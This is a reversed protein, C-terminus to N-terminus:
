VLSIEKVSFGRILLLFNSSAKLMLYRGTFPMSHDVPYLHLQSSSERSLTVELLRGDLMVNHRDIESDVELELNVRQFRIIAGLDFVVTDLLDVESEWSLRGSELSGVHLPSSVGVNGLVVNWSYQTKRKDFLDQASKCAREFLLTQVQGRTTSEDNHLHFGDLLFSSDTELCEEDLLADHLSFYVFGHEVCKVSLSSNLCKAAYNRERDSGVSNRDGGAGYGGYVLVKFGRSAIESAFSMYRDVVEDVCGEISLRKQYCYKIVNSRVDVEGFCLLVAETMPNMRCVRSLVQRRGGTSSNEEVLNYATSAGVHNVEIGNCGEFIKVHSDGFAVLRTVSLLDLSKKLFNESYSFQENLKLYLEGRLSEFLFFLSDIDDPSRLLISSYFDVAEKVQGSKLFCLGLGAISIVHGPDEALARKYLSVAEHYEKKKRLEGALRSLADVCNPVVAIVKRYLFIAEEVRGQEKLLLSLNLYAISHNPNIKIARRYSAIAEETRGEEKFLLGLNIYADVFSPSANISKKYCLIAHNADGLHKWSNGLAFWAGFSSPDIRVAKELVAISEKFEFNKQLCRGMNNFLESHIFGLKEARRYAKLSEEAQSNLAYANGLNFWCEPDSPAISVAKLLLSIASKYCKKSSLLCGLFRLALFINPDVELIARYIREAKDLEGGNHLKVAAQLQQMIKEQNM